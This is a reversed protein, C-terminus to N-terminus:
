EIARGVEPRCGVLAVIWRLGAGIEREGPVAGAHLPRPHGTSAGVQEGHRLIASPTDPAGEMVRFWQRDREAGAFQPPHADARAVARDGHQRASPSQDRHAEHGVLVLVVEDRAEVGPADQEIGCGVPRAVHVENSVVEHGHRGRAGRGRAPAQRPRTSRHAEVADGQALTGAPDVRARVDHAKEVVGFPCAGPPKAGRLWHGARVRLRLEPEVVQARADTLVAPPAHRRQGRGGKIARREDPGRAVSRWENAHEVFGRAQGHREVAGTSRDRHTKLVIPGPDVIERFRRHIGEPRSAREHPSAAAQEGERKVAGAPHKGGAVRDTAHDDPSQARPQDAQDSVRLGDRRDDEAGVVFM